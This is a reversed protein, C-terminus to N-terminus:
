SANPSKLSGAKLQHISSHGSTLVEAKFFGALAPVELLEALIM